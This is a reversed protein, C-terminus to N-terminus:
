GTAPPTTGPAPASAAATRGGRAARRLDRAFGLAGIASRTRVRTPARRRRPPPGATAGVAREGGGEAPRERQHQRADGPAGAALRHGIRRRREDGGIEADKRARIDPRRQETIRFRTRTAGLSALPM